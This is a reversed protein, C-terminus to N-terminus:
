NSYNYKKKNKSLTKSAVKSEPLQQDGNLQDGNRSQWENHGSQPARGARGSTAM